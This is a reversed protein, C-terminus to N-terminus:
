ENNKKNNDLYEFEKLVTQYIHRKFFIVNEVPYWYDVWRYEAFEPHSGKNLGINDESSILRLFFWKQKQGICLPLQTVRRMYTPLRYSLWKRTIGLIQVDSRDLGVEEMLERYMTEELTEYPLMGGQPFQWANASGVRKGWFIKGQDNTLIIGINLRYGNSDIVLQNNKGKIEKAGQNKKENKITQRSM